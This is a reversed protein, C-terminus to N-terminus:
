EIMQDARALLSPPITLGLAKATKLNIVLEFKTPQEVPLDGPKAGKLIKDVYTSARRFLDPLNPGYSMLGGVDAYPRGGYIAPLRNRAAFEVLRRRNVSTVQGDFPLFATAREREIAALAIELEDSTRVPYPRVEIRLAQGSAEVDKLAPLHPPISPDWLVAIRSAGPAVEHLLQLLKGGYESQSSLGTVNGGPRALSAILGSGVPDGVNVMVIPITGTAQKAAKAAPTTTAVIVDVQLRVFESALDPFREAKGESYRREIVLNQGEVYGRERLGEQFAEWIPLTAPVPATVALYGIRYVKGVRQAEAALPTALVGALSTLLFRRRDV